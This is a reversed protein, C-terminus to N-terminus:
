EGKQHIVKARYEDPLYQELEDLFPYVFGKFYFKDEFQKIISFPLTM